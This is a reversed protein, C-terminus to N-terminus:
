SFTLSASASSTKSTSSASRWGYLHHWLARALTTSSGKYMRKPDILMLMLMLMMSTSTALRLGHFYHWLARASSRSLQPRQLPRGRGSSWIIKVVWIVFLTAFAPRTRFILYDDGGLYCVINCFRAEDQIPWPGRFHVWPCNPPCNPNWKM